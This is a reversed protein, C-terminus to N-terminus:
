HQALIDREWTTLKTLTVGKRISDLPVVQAWRSGHWIVEAEGRPSAWVSDLVVLRAAGDEAVVFWDPGNASRMVGVRVGDTVVRGVLALARMSPTTGPATRTIPDTSM